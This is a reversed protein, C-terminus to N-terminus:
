TRRRRLALQSVKAGLVLAALGTCLKAFLEGHIAYFTIVSEDPINAEGVLTGEEFISGRDDRLIQTVRGLDNVFCTVGTNAARVMPRRLEVSSFIANALHQRSGASRLFWGDNTVTVLLQAGRLVFQRALEGVTDEFCILPAVRARDGSLQFVTYDTGFNFDEPVQDGAITAFLPFSHRLPVYEGFPVLHIKHYLQVPADPAFLMAANYVHERDVDISGILFDVNASRALGSVFDFSRQDSLVPAPLASEPWIILDLHASTQEAIETLRQFKAFIKDTFSPDFKEERPIGAQIAAIHLVRTPPRNKSTHIGFTFVSILGVLTLTLDFHPKMLRARTEEWLRRATTVLIINIFVVLFTVGAVGTFEAIQILPWMAHLSVGLGNWGWGSFLWGRIWEMAVWAAALVFAFLLNHGSSLWPSASPPPASSALMGSWKDVVAIERRARPRMLGCFWSWVAFYCAMYLGIAFWGGGTVTTLWFFAIWVFIAGAIYGLALDRLWRRKSGAGSFLIALTLPVLAIWALWTQDFPPLAAAACVGTAIAALWPCFRKM